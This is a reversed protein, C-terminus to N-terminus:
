YGLPLPPPRRGYPVVPGFLEFEYILQGAYRFIEEMTAGPKERIFRDWAANWPGGNAGRHISRHKEVELPIVYEDINIKKETFWPRFAQSFIHHQEHPKRREAKAEELAQQQSPLLPPKHRWPIIFVPRTDQPLEQAIGWNRQAGFGVGPLSLGGGKTPVVRGVTLHEMVERCRYVGCQGGICLALLSSEDACAEEFSIAEAAVECGPSEGESSLTTACAALM